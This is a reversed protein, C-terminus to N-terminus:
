NYCVIDDRLQPALEGEIYGFYRLTKLKLETASMEDCVLIFKEHHQFMSIPWLMNVSGEIAHYVALAKLLGKSLILIEKANMLTQIGVTIATKPVDELHGFFRANDTLTQRTLTKVRTKSHLSSGPENFAIHGNSGVSGFFLHVGGLDNILQEYREAEVNIDTAMGNPLYTNESKIDIHRFLNNQMFYYYSQPDKASLGVYEDMNVTVVNQFSVIKEQYAEILLHYVALPTGGTPLGLVFPKEATPQFNNIKNIIYNAAWKDYDRYLALLRM